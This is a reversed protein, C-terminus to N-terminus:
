RDGMHRLADVMEEFYIGTQFSGHNGITANYTYSVHEGSSNEVVCYKLYWDDPHPLELIGIVKFNQLYAQTLLMNIVEISERKEM